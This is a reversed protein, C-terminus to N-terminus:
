PMVIFRGSSRSGNNGKIHYIYLGQSLTKEFFLENGNFSQQHIKSGQLDFVELNFQENDANEVIFTTYNHFPNPQIKVKFDKPFTAADDASVIVFSRGIRHLTTNTMIPKNFDFYIGARNKITTGNKLDAKQAIRYRVFGQSKAEDAKKTTLNINDFTVKLTSRNELTWAYPHSSAGMQISLLDLNQDITDRLVVTFATDTGENQFDIQYEIETNPEILAKEGYGRPTALKENPDYSGIIQRCDIDLYPENDNQSFQTIMNPTFNGGCGEVAASVFNNNSPHFNAQEVQVRLTKGLPNFELTKTEGVGLQIPTQFMMIQDEIVISQRAQSNPATGINKVEFIAKGGTCKGKIQLSSNDWASSIVCASDPYIRATSCLTQGLATSDCNVKVTVQITGKEDIDLTGIDFRYQNGTLKTFPKSASQVILWKDFDVIIHTNNSALTGKNTYQIVYQNDFCRRLRQTSLSVNNEVCLTNAQMPINLNLTDTWSSFKIDPLSCLKWLNSTKVYIKYKFTDLGVKYNGLTDSITIVTDKASEFRLLIEKKGKEQNNLVCDKNDDRFVKGKVVAGSLITNSSLTMKLGSHSVTYSYTGNITIPLQNNNVTTAFLQKNRYWKYTLKNITSGGLDGVLNNNIITLPLKTRQPAYGINPVNNFNSNELDAFDFLNYDISVAANPKIKDFNPVTGALNNSGLNLEMLNPLKDFNPITGTLQDRELYLKTLKPVKDFNPITGTLPNSGLNLEMLNPLKDFNPITGTLQNNYLYLLTLNPLKDFNPITGTLQSSGLNLEVLNPLKDFNPITGALPNAGLYLKSLKPLKDFNPITGTLQTSSLALFALNPLKDFNPITGTLQTSFLLLETLNPLKDFNPITGTLQNHDLWLQSLEPLKDFNSVTGTLQNSELSLRRLNPLKDFNSITGTLQNRSLSLETLNPLKDFNPITGTLKNSGLDLVELKPLNLNILSGKLNNGTLVLEKIDCTDATLTVGKWKSLDKETFWGTKNTWTNGETADYLKELERFDDELCTALGAPFPRPAQAFVAQYFAIFVFILTFKKM